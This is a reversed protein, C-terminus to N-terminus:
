AFLGAPPQEAAPAPRHHRHRRVPRAPTPRTPASVETETDAATMCSCSGWDDTDFLEPQSEIRQRFESLPLPRSRGFSRDRLISHNGVQQRLREEAAEARAFSGPLERLIREWYAQGGKVCGFQLCNNHPLGLSYAAPQPLDSAALMALAQHKDLPPDWCLPADVTWGDIRASVRDLRHQETWDFGFHITTTDPDCHTDRWADLLERKLIRSCFDARTNPIMQERQALQWIDLGACLVVLEAQLDAAAANIFPRWDPHESLTDACLLVVGDPGQHDILRRAAAWSGAGGSFQVLDTIPHTQPPTHQPDPRTGAPRSDPTPRTPPRSRAPRHNRRHRNVTSVHCGLQKALQTNSANPAAAAAQLIRDRLATPPM